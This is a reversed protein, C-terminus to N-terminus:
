QPMCISGLANFVLHKNLFFCNKRWVKSVTSDPPVCVDWKFVFRASLDMSCISYQDYCMVERQEKGMKQDYRGSGHAVSLTCSNCKKEEAPVM